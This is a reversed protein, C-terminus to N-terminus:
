HNTLMGTDVTELLDLHRTNVRELSTLFIEDHQGTYSSVLVLANAKQVVGSSQIDGQRPCPSDEKEDRAQGTMQSRRYPQNDEEEMSGQKNRQGRFKLGPKTM